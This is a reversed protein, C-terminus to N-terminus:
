KRLPIAYRAMVDLGDFITAEVLHHTGQLDCPMFHSCVGDVLIM